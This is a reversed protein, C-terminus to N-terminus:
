SIVGVIYDKQAVAAEFLEAVEEDMHVTMTQEAADAVHKPLIYFAPGYGANYDLEHIHGMDEELIDEGIDEGTALAMAEYADVIASFDVGSIHADEVGLASLEASLDEFFLDDLLSPKQVIREFADNSLRCLNLWMSM